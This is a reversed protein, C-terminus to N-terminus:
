RKKRLLYAEGHRKLIVRGIRSDYREIVPKVIFGERIHDAAGRGEIQVTTRGDALANLHLGWPGRYLTPVWELGCSTALSVAADHDMYGMTKLDFVDFVRFLAGNNPKVGYKLDQVNGFVEGFFVHMPAKSLKAELDTALAVQWWVSNGDGRAKVQHHSGVWLRSGDHVYRANAGHIKETLVVEEGEVLVDPYRRQGEIDTYQVFTFNQPSAEATAVTSTVMPPEYKTIGLMHQVHLGERWLEPNSSSPLPHLCGQSFLGRIKRAEVIRYKEPVQGVPFRLNGENDRPCFHYFEENDPVVADVPIYVALDGEKFNGRKAVVTYDFVKTVDLTDANPHPTFPGLRVVQVHFESM